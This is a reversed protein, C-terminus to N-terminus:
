KKNWKKWGLTRDFGVLWTFYNLICASQYFVIIVIYEFLRSVATTHVYEQIVYATMIWKPQNLGREGITTVLLPLSCFFILSLGWLKCNECRVCPELNIDVCWLVLYTRRFIACRCMRGWLHIQCLVKYAWLHGGGGGGGRIKQRRWTGWSHCVNTPSLPRQVMM